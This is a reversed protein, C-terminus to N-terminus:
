PGSFRRALFAGLDGSAIRIVMGIRIHPLGDACLRYVTARCVRLAAAAEAVTLWAGPQLGPAAGASRGGPAPLVFGAAEVSEETSGRAEQTPSVPNSGAVGQDRVM